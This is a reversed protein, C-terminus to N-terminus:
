IELGTSERIISFVRCLIRSFVKFKVYIEFLLLFFRFHHFLVFKFTKDDDYSRILVFIISYFSFLFRIHNAFHHLLVSQDTRFNMYRSIWINSSARHNRGSSMLLFEHWAPFLPLKLPHPLSFKTHGHPPPNRSLQPLMSSSPHAGILM